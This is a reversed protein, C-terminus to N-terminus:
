DGFADGSQGSEAGLEGLESRVWSRVGSPGMRELVSRWSEGSGHLHHRHTVLVVEHEGDPAASASLSAALAVTLPSSDQVLAAQLAEYEKFSLVATSPLVPGRFSVRGSAALFFVSLSLWADESGLSRVAKSGLSVFTFDVFVEDGVFHLEPEDISM